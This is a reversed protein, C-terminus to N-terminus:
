CDTGYNHTLPIPLLWVEIGKYGSLIFAAEKVFPIALVQGALGELRATVYSIFPVYVVAFFILMYLLGYGNDPNGAM